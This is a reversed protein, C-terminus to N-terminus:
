RAPIGAAEAAACADPESACPAAAAPALRLCTEHRRAVDDRHTISVITTAPLARRLTTELAAEAAADLASTGEDLFLWDPRCLLARAAALRQQEGPSLIQAWPAEEDLRPLHRALGVTTLAERVTADQLSAPDQPYTAARRLTGEPLYPRQPVFMRTGPPTALMGTAYPWIGALTRFLTSKGTGSPGLIATPRGAALTFELPALLPTGDPRALALDHAVFADAESFALSPQLRRAADIARRFTALREVQAAVSAWAAYQSMFWLLADTVSGFIQVIQMLTGFTIRGAFFRPASALLAFNGSVEQLGGTVFSLWATRRIVSMGNGFVDAFRVAAGRAEEREGGLLAVAESNERIRMLSFRFQADFRQQLFDLAALRRGALHTLLTAVAAYLVAAILLYGPLAIGFVPLTGSLVWLLGGYSVLTVVQSVLGVTLTLANSTVLDIDEQIRQEPNETGLTRGGGALQMRYHVHEALWDRVYHLTLWRRWRLQLWQQLFTTGVNIALFVPVFMFFGPMPLGHPRPTFWFLGRFFAAADKTQLATYYINRSYSVAIGLGVLALNLGILVALMSAAFVREESVFYPKMLYFLDALFRGAKRM